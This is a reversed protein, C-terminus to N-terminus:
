ISDKVTVIKLSGTQNMSVRYGAYSFSLEVQSQASPPTNYLVEILHDLEHYLSPLETMEKGELKAIAELFDHEATEPNPEIQYVAMSQEGTDGNESGKDHHTTVANVTSPGVLLRLQSSM